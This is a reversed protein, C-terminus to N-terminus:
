KEVKEKTFLIIVCTTSYEITYAKPTPSNKLYKMITQSYDKSLAELLHSFHQHKM